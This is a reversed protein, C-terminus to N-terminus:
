KNSEAINKLHQEYTEGFLHGKSGDKKTVYFLYNTESPYLAAKISALSPSAIPGPPLGSHLYTNYPSEIQLDKEYLRTKQKEFMYQVTADIQLNMSKHLRNYIVGAVLAREEDLIVEREILSAVTMMQHMTMQKTQLVDTWDPPLQELKKDLQVVMRGVMEQATSDKRWEYTEPFLYGELRIKLAPNDPISEIAKAKYRAPDDAAEMFAVPDIGAANSLKEAMQQVTYGEPITLRLTEEKVIQGNNLKGIMDELPMGPSMEYKGAQFKDGQKRIKLYYTFIDANRVLGRSELLKAISASDTGPPIDVFLSEGTAATPMLAQSVYLAAGIIVGALLSAFGAAVKWAASRWSTVYLNEVRIGREFIFLGV